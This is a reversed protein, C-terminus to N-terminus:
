CVTASRCILPSTIRRCYTNAISDRHKSV